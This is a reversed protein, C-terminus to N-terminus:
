FVSMNLENTFLPLYTFVVCGHICWVIFSHLVKCILINGVRDCLVTEDVGDGDIDAALVHQACHPWVDKDIPLVCHQNFSVNRIM